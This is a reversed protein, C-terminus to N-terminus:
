AETDSIRVGGSPIIVYDDESSAHVGHRRYDVDRTRVAIGNADEGDQRTHGRVLGCFGQIPDRSADMEYLIVYDTLPSASDAIFVNTVGFTRWASMVLDDTLAGAGVNGGFRDTLEGAERFYEHVSHELIASNLVGDYNRRAVGIHAIPTSSAPTSWQGTTASSDTADFPTSAAALPTLFSEDEGRMLDSLSRQLWREEVLGLGGQMMLEKVLQDSEDWVAERGHEIPTVNITEVQGPPATPTPSGTLRRYPATMDPDRYWTKKPLTIRGAKGVQLLATARLAVYRSDAGLYQEAWRAVVHALDTRAGALAGAGSYYDAM